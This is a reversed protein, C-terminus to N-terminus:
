SEVGKKIQFYWKQANFLGSNSVNENTENSKHVTDTGFLFVCDYRMDNKLLNIRKARFQKSFVLFFSFVFFVIFFVLIQTKIMQNSVHGQIEM